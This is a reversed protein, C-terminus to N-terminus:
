KGKKGNTRADVTRLADPLVANPSVKAATGTSSKKGADRHVGKGTGTGGATAKGPKHSATQLVAKPGAKGGQEVETAEPSGLAFLVLSGVYLMKLSWNMVM